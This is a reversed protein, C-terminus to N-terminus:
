QLEEPPFIKHKATCKGRMPLNESTPNEIEGLPLESSTRRATKCSNKGGIIHAQLPQVLLDTASLSAKSVSDMSEATSRRKSKGIVTGQHPHTTQINTNHDVRM